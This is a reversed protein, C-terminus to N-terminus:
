AQLGLDEVGRPLQPLHPRLLAELPSGLEPPRDEPREQTEEQRLRGQRLEEPPPASSRGASPSRRGARASLVAPASVASRGAAGAALRWGGAQWMAALRWGGARGTRAGARGSPGIIGMRRWATLSVRSRLKSHPSRGAVQTIKRRTRGM